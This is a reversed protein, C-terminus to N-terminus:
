SGGISKASTGPAEHAHEFIWEIGRALPRNDGAGAVADPARYRLRQRTLAHARHKGIDALLPHCAGDLIRRPRVKGRWPGAIKSVAGRAAAQQRMRLRGEPLDRM